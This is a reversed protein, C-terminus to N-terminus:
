AASAMGNPNEWIPEHECNAPTENLFRGRRRRKALKEENCNAELIETKIPGKELGEGRSFSANAFFIRPRQGACGRSDRLRRCIRAAAAQGANRVGRARLTLAHLPSAPACLLEPAEARVHTQRASAGSSSERMQRRGTIATRHSICSSSTGPAHAELTAIRADQASSPTFARSQGPGRWVRGQWRRSM